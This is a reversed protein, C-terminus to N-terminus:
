KKNSQNISQNDKELAAGMTYPPEWALPRIPATAEPSHWLWLLTPDSSCRRGVCLEPLSPDKVWQVLGPILGVVEHNRTLNMLWQSIVPVGSKVKETIDWGSQPWTQPPCQQLAPFVIAKRAPGSFPGSRSPPNLKPDETTAIRRNTWGLSTHQNYFFQSPFYIM